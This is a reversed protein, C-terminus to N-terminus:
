YEYAAAYMWVVCASQVARSNIRICYVFLPNVFLFRVSPVPKVVKGPRFIFGRM